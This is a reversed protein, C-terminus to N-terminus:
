ILRLLLRSVVLLGIMASSESTKYIKDNDEGDYIQLTGDGEGDYILGYIAAHTDRVFIEGDKSPAKVNNKCTLDEKNTVAGVCFPNTLITDQLQVQIEALGDNSSTKTVTDNFFIDTSTGRTAKKQCSGDLLM